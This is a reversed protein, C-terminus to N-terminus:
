FSIMVIKINISIQGTLLNLNGTLNNRTHSISWCMSNTAIRHEHLKDSEQDSSM